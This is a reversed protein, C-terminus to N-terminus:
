DTLPAGHLLYVPMLPQHKEDFAAALFRSLSLAEQIAPLQSPILWAWSMVSFRLM